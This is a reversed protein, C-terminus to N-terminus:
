APAGPFLLALLQEEDIPKPVCCEAGAQLIKGVNEASPYGSMALVRIAATAPNAKVQRCVQFGDLGPMMLDLLIVDPAFAHLLHGAAFGDTATAVAVERGELSGLWAALYRTVAADDDVILLRCASAPAAAQRKQERVFAEVESRLYRRHGGATTTARLLGKEAWLRVTGPGVMLLTAVENPSLYPKPKQQMAHQDGWTNGTM